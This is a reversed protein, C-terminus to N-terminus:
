QEELINGTRMADQISMEVKQKNSEINLLVIYMKLLHKLIHNYWIKESHSKQICMIKTHVLNKWFTISTHVNNSKTLDRIYISHSILLADTPKSSLIELFMDYKLWKITLYPCFILPVTEIFMQLHARSVLIGETRLNKTMIDNIM